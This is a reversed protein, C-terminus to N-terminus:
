IEEILPIASGIDFIPQESLTVACVGYKELFAFILDRDPHGDLRGTFALTDDAIKFTAGGLFGTDYGPLSIFGPRILLVDVSERRLAAAIGTDATIVADERVVCVSCRAFGQKVYIPRYDLEFLKNNLNLDICKPNFIAMKDLLLVNYAACGPYKPELPSLGSFVIAKDDVLKKVKCPLEDLQATYRKNVKCEEVPASLINERYLHIVQMDIHSAVPHELADSKEVALATIGYRELCLADQYAMGILVLHVKGKPLHPKEIFRYM